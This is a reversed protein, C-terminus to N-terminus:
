RVSFSKRVVRAEWEGRRKIWIKPYFGMRMFDVRHKIHEIYVYIIDGIAILPHLYKCLESAIYGLHTWGTGYDLDIAIASPDTPNLPEPKLKVKVSIDQRLVLNEQELHHQYNNENAAGICNFPVSHTIEKDEDTENEDSEGPNSEAANDSGDQNHELNAL